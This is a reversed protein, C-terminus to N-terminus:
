ITNALDAPTGASPPPVEPAIAPVVSGPERSVRVIMRGPIRMDFRAFGRGLMQAQQDRRAFDAIARQAAEEGEPLALVEGTQFRLDWRRGGIWTAGALQPRLHAASGLLRELSATQLNAAPGILLPLDPMAELRVHELVVGQGDILMLRRDHQWIAAPTREVIDIVLTDPLRRSVRADAVWGFVLLRERIAGLDVLPMARRLEAAVVADIRQRDMNDVGRIEYRRVAFGAEGVAQGVAAGVRQPVRLALIAGIAMAALLSLVIWKSARRVTEPAIGAQELWGPRKQRRPAARPASRAKAPRARPGPGGRAIRATTM